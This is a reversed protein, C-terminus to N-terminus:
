PQSGQILSPVQSPCGVLVVSDSPPFRIADRIRWSAQAGLPLFARAREECVHRRDVNGCLHRCPLSSSLSTTYHSLSPKLSWESVAMACLSFLLVM